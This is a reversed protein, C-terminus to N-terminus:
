RDYRIVVKPLTARTILVGSIQNISSSQQTLFFWGPSKETLTFYAENMKMAWIACLLLYNWLIVFQLENAFLIDGLQLELQM